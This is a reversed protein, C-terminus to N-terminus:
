FWDQAAAKGTRANKGRTLQSRRKDSFPRRPPANKKTPDPRCAVHTELRAECEAVEPLAYIFIQNRAEVRDRPSLPIDWTNLGIAAIM